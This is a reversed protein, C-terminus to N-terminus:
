IGQNPLKKDHYRALNDDQVYSNQSGNNIVDINRELMRPLSEILREYLRYGTDTDKVCVTERDVIAGSDIGENMEHITYDTEQDGEIIPWFTPFCGRNKPLRAPHCNLVGGPFMDILSKPLIQHYSVSLGTNPNLSGLELICAEVRTSVDGLVAIGNQTAYDIIEKNEKSDKAIVGKIEVDATRLTKLAVLGPKNGLFLIVGM